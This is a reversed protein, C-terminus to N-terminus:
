QEQCFSYYAAGYKTMTQRFPDWFTDVERKAHQCSEKTTYVQTQHVPGNSANIMITLVWLAPKIYLTEM